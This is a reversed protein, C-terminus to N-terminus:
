RDSSEGFSKQYKRRRANAKKAINQLSSTCRLCPTIDGNIIHISECEDTGDEEEWLEARKSQAIYSPPATDYNMYEEINPEKAIKAGCLTRENDASLHVLGMFPYGLDNYHKVKKWLTLPM